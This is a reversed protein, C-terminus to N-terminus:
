VWINWVRMSQRVEDVSVNKAFGRALDLFRQPNQRALFLAEECFEPSYREGPEFKAKPQHTNALVRLARAPGFRGRMMSMIPQGHARHFVQAM